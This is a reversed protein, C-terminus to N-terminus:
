NTKGVISYVTTLLVWIKDHVTKTLDLIQLDLMTIEIFLSAGM